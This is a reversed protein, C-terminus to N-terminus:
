DQVMIYVNTLMYVDAPHAGDLLSTIVDRNLDVGEHTITANLIERRGLGFLSFSNIPRLHQKNPNKIEPRDVIQDDQVSVICNVHTRKPLSTKELKLVAKDHPREWFSISRFRSEKKSQSFARATKALGENWAQLWTPSSETKYAANVLYPSALLSLQWDALTESAIPTWGLSHLQAVIVDDAAGNAVCAQAADSLFDNPEQASSTDYTGALLACCALYRVLNKVAGFGKM